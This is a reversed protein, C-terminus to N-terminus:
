DILVGWIVDHNNIDSWYMNYEYAAYHRMQRKEKQKTKYFEYRLYHTATLADCFSIFPQKKKLAYNYLQRWTVWCSQCLPQLWLGFANDIMRGSWHQHEISCGESQSESLGRKFPLCSLSSSNICTPLERNLWITVSRTEQVCRTVYVQLISWISKVCLGRSRNTITLEQHVDPLALCPM